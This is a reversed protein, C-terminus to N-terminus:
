RIGDLSIAAFRADAGTMHAPLLAWGAATLKEVSSLMKDMDAQMNSIGGFM